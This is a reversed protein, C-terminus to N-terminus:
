KQVQQLQAKAQELQARLVPDDGFTYGASGDGAVPKPKAVKVVVPAKKEVAPPSAKLKTLKKRKRKPKGCEKCVTYPKFFGFKRTKSIVHGLTVSFHQGCKTCSRTCFIADGNLHEVKDVKIQKLLTLPRRNDM